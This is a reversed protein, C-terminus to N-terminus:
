LILKFRQHTILLLSYPRSKSAGKNPSYTRRATARSIDVHAASINSTRINRPLCRPKLSSRSYCVSFRKEEERRICADFILVLQQCRIDASAARRKNSRRRIHIRSQATSAVNAACSSLRTHRGRPVVKFPRTTKAPPRATTVAGNTMSRHCRADCGFLRRSARHRSRHPSTRFESLFGPPGDASFPFLPVSNSSSSFALRMFTFLHYFLELGTPLKLIRGYSLKGEDKHM